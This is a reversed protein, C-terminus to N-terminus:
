DRSEVIAELKDRGREANQARIIAERLQLELDLAYNSLTVIVSDNRWAGRLKEIDPRVM